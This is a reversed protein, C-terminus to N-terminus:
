QTGANFTCQTRINSRFANKQETAAIWEACVKRGTKAVMAAVNEEPTPIPLHGYHTGHPKECGEDLRGALIDAYLKLLPHIGDDDSVDFETKREPTKAKMRIAAALVSLATRPRKEAPLDSPDIEDRRGLSDASGTSGADDASGASGPPM